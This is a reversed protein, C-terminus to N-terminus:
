DFHAHYQGQDKSSDFSTMDSYHENFACLVVEYKFFITIDARDKVTQSINVNSILMIKSQGKSHVLTLHLYELLFPM